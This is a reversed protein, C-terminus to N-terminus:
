YVRRSGKIWPKSGGPTPCPLFQSSESIIADKRLIECLECVQPGKKRNFHDFLSKELNGWAELWDDSEGRDYRACLEGSGYAHTEALTGSPDRFTPENTIRHWSASHDEPKSSNHLRLDYEGEQESDHDLHFVAIM